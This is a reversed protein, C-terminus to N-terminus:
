RRKKYIFLQKKRNGKGYQYIKEILTLGNKTIFEMMGEDYKYNKKLAMPYSFNNFRATVILLGNPNLHDILHKVVVEPSWLHPLVEFCTIADYKEKLPRNNRVIIIKIPLNLRKVRGKAFDLTKSPVDAMSAKLGARAAKISDEGIGCGYDLIEKVKYKKAIRIATKSIKKKADRSHVDALEFIYKDNNRFWGEVADKNKQDINTKNWDEVAINIWKAFGPLHQIKADMKRIQSIPVKLFLSLERIKDFDLM